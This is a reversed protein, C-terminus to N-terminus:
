ANIYATLAGIVVDKKFENHDLAYQSLQRYLEKDIHITLHVAEKKNSVKNSDVGIFAHTALPNRPTPKPM